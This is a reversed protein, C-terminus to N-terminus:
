SEATAWVQTGGSLRFSYLHEVSALKIDSLRDRAEKILKDVRVRHSGQGGREEETM